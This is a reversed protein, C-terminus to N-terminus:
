FPSSYDFPSFLFLVPKNAIENFDTMVSSGIGENLISMLHVEANKVDLIGIWYCLM